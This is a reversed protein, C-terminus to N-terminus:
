AGAPLGTAAASGVIIASGVAPVVNFIGEAITFGMPAHGIGDRRGNQLLWLDNKPPPELGAGPWFCRRRGERLHQGVSTLSEPLSLRRDEPLPLRELSLVLAKAIPVGLQLFTGFGRGTLKSRLPILKLLPM